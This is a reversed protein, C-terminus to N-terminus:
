QFGHHGFTTVSNYEVADFAIRDLPPNNVETARVRGGKVQDAVNRFAPAM